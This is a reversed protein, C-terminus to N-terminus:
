NDSLKVNKKTLLKCFSKKGSWIKNNQTEKKSSFYTPITISHLLHQNLQCKRIHFNSSKSLLSNLKPVVVFLWCNSSQNRRRRNSKDNIKDDLKNCIHMRECGATEIFTRLIGCACMVPTFSISQCHNLVEERTQREEEICMNGENHTTTERQRVWHYCAITHVQLLNFQLKPACLSRLANEIIKTQVCHVTSAALPYVAIVVIYHKLFTSIAEYIFQM